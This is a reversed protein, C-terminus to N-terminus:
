EKKWASEGSDLKWDSGFYGAGQIGKADFVTWDPYGVGSAFYPLRDTARLGTLGTGAIAAVMAKDSGPRPRVLLVGLGDGKAHRDGVTVATSTVQVPSEGLLPKWAANMGAHGYLVVNRDPQAKPDFESDAVVDISGNGRYWFVEADYRAKAVAWANEAPTGKTAYVFVVRNRFADKFAGNRHPGKVDTSPKAAVAWKESERALWVRTEGKPWAIDDLTQGDLKVGFSKGSPLMGVDLSLRSINETTGRFTREEPNLTLEVKSVLFAKVQAEVRLWHCDASVRPNATRFEVRRVTSRELLEHGAFFEFIPPWDMCENGWWHGAGRKERYVFDPHFDSLEKRMTRAQSVPVNDDEDGHLVYVGNSTINRLLALTDSPGSARLVLEREATATPDKKLGAYSWISVWGASPAIAAFRDPYTVGIHWTGHGGMSHGTLYTRRPDTNLDRSAHELVELADLRGWDEWDFGFPRRNTAAVIHMGPKALYCSAQKDAEVAAGHLTLVLGPKKGDTTPKAPVVSYYQVSGDIESIFTRRHTSEPKAVQLTLQLTDLPEPKGKRLLRIRLPVPGPTELATAALRFGIKRISAPMLTPVDTLTPKQEGVSAEIVLDPAPNATCNRVLLAAVTDIPVGVRLDPLTVDGGDLEAASKPELFQAKVPGRGAAFLFDNVGEHLVVPVRVYGNAYIDGVRPEGNVYVMGHGMAHLVVVRAAASKVPMYAYGGPTIGFTGDKVQASAWLREAGGPLTLKDGAKPARWDPAALAVSVPDVPVPNRGGVNVAPVILVEDPLTPPAAHVQTQSLLMAWAIALLQPHRTVINNM